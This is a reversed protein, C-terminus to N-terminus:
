RRLSNLVTWSAAKVERFVIKRLTDEIQSRLVATAASAEGRFFGAEVPLECVLNRSRKLRTVFCSRWIRFMGQVYQFYKEVCVVSNKAQFVPLKDQLVTKM